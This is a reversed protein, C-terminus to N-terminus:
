AEAVEQVPLPAEPRISIIGHKFLLEEVGSVEVLIAYTGYGKFVANRIEYGDVCRIYVPAATDVLRQYFADEMASKPNPRLPQPEHRESMERTAMVAGGEREPRIDTIDSIVDESPRFVRSQSHPPQSLPSPGPISAVPSDLERPTSDLVGGPPVPVREGEKGDEVGSVQEGGDGVEEPSLSTGEFRMPGKVVRQYYRRMAELRERRDVPGMGERLRVMRVVRKSAADLVANVVAEGPSTVVPAAGVLVEEAERQSAVLAVLAVERFAFPVVTVAEVALNREGQSVAQRLASLTAQAIARLRNRLGPSGKASGSATRVEGDVEYRLEVTVQAQAETVTETLRHLRYAVRESLPLPEDRLRAVQIRWGEVPISFQSMLASVVSRRVAAVETQGETTLYIREIEGDQTAVVRASLIGELRELFEEIEGAFVERPM